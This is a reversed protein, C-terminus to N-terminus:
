ASGQVRVGPRSVSVGAVAQLADMDCLAIRRARVELLGQAHFRKFIRSVTEMALGLYSAIHSRSMPLRFRQGPFGRETLRSSLGLLFLAMRQEANKAGLLLPVWKDQRTQSGLAQILQQQFEGIRHGFRHLRLLNFRCVSSEELAVVEYTAYGSGLSELGVLEGPLHFEVVQEEGSTLIATVKFAGYRVAIIEAFSKGAAVLRQGAPVTERRNVVEDLLAPASTELGAVRCIGYLGCCRCEVAQRNKAARRKRTPYLNDVATAHM